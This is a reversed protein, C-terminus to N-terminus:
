RDSLARKAGLGACAAAFGRRMGPQVGPSEVVTRRSRHTSITFVVGTGPILVVVPSTILFHLTIM